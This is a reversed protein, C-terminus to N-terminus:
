QTNERNSDANKHENTYHLLDTGGLQIEVLSYYVPVGDNVRM